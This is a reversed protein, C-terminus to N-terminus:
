ELAEKLKEFEDTMVFRVGIKQLSKLTQVDNVTYAVADVLYRQLRQILTDSYNEAPTM